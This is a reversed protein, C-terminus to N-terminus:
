YHDIIETIKLSPPPVTHTPPPIESRKTKAQTSNNIEQNKKGKPTTLRRLNSNEKYSRRYLQIQPYVNNLNQRTM